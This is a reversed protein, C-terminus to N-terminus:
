AGDEVTSAKEKMNYELISTVQKKRENKNRNLIKPQGNLFNNGINCQRLGTGTSFLPGAFDVRGVLLLYIKPPNLHFRGAVHRTSKTKAGQGWTLPGLLISGDLQDVM